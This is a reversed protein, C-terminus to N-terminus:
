IFKKRDILVYPDSQDNPMEISVKKGSETTVSISIGQVPVGTDDGCVWEVFENGTSWEENLYQADGNKFSVRFEFNNM